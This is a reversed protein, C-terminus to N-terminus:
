YKFCLKLYPLYHVTKRHHQNVLWDWYQGSMAFTSITSGIDIIKLTLTLSKWSDIDIIKLLWHWHNKLTLTLVWHWHQSMIIWWQWHWHSHWHRSKVWHWHISIQWHDNVKYLLTLLESRLTLLQMCDNVLRLTMLTLIDLFDIDIAGEIVNSM